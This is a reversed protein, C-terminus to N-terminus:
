IFKKQNRNSKRALHKAASKKRAKRRQKNMRNIESEGRKQMMENRTSMENNHNTGTNYNPQYPKNGCGFTLILLFFIFLIRLM